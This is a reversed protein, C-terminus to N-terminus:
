REVTNELQKQEQQYKNKVVLVNSLTSFDTFLNVKLTNYNDDKQKEFTAITGVLLGAPFITSYGSTLITDGVEFDVHRPLETLYTYRPDGGDWVLPGFSNNNKVMCSLRFKENLVPIVRSFHASTSMVVGVIGSASVVGMDEAVGDLTGKNLTLYNEIKAINNNIVKAPIWQYIGDSLDIDIGSTRVMNDAQEEAYQFDHIQNELEAIRHMMQENTTKLNTYAYFASTVSYIAGTVEQAAALFKSRQLRSNNVILVISSSLLLTFLVWHVNRFIFSFLNKM